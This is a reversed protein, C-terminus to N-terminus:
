PTPGAFEDPQMAILRQIEAVKSDVFLVNPVAFTERKAGMTSIEIDGSGLGIIWHRFLDNRHKEFVMGRTDYSKASGGILFDHTMQGPTVRWYNLRDYIFVSVFWVIFIMTSFCVYFGMNMHISILSFWTALQEWWGFYLSLVVALVALLVVVVSALGRVVVNTFMIVLFCVLTFIVGLDKSTNFWEMRGGGMDIQTAGPGFRSLIAMIYGCAWVPWWYFFNSHSFIVVENPAKEQKRQEARKAEHATEGAPEVIVQQPVAAPPLVMPPQGAAPQTYVVPPAAAVPQQVPTGAPYPANPSVTSM